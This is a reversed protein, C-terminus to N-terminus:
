LFPYSLRFFVLFVGSVYGLVVLEAVRTGSDTIQSCNVTVNHTPISHTHM